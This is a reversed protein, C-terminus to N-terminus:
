RLRPSSSRALEEGGNRGAVVGDGGSASRRQRPSIPMPLVVAAAAIAAASNPPPRCRSPRGRCRRRRHRGPACPQPRRHRARGAGRPASASGSAIAAARRRARARRSRRRSAQRGGAHCAPAARRSRRCPRPPAARGAARAPRAPGHAHGGMGRGFGACRRSSSLGRGSAAARDRCAARRLGGACAQCDVDHAGCEVAVGAHRAEGLGAHGVAGSRAPTCCTAAPQSFAWRLSLQEVRAKKDSHRGLALRGTTPGPPRLCTRGLPRASSRIVKEEIRHEGGLRQKEAIGSPSGAEVEGPIARLAARAAPRHHTRAVLVGVRAVVVGGAGAPEIIDGAVGLVLDRGLEAHRPLARLPQDRKGDRFPQDLDADVVRDGVAELKRRPQLRTKREVQHSTTGLSGSDAEVVKPMASAAAASISRRSRDGSGITRAIPVPRVSFAAISCSVGISHGCCLSTDSVPLM